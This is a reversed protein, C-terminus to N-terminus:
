KNERDLEAEDELRQYELLREVSPMEAEVNTVHEVIGIFFPPIAFGYSVIIGSYQAINIDFSSVIVMAFCILFSM